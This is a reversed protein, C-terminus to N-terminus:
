LKLLQILCVVVVFHKGSECIMVFEGTNFRSNDTGANTDFHLADDFGVQASCQYPVGNWSGVVLPRGPSLGLSSAQDHAEQCRSESKIETGSPCPVNADM